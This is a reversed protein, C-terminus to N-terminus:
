AKKACINATDKRNTVFNSILFRQSSPLDNLSIAGAVNARRLTIWLEFDDPTGIAEFANNTKKSSCLWLSWCDLREYFINFYHTTAAILRAKTAPDCPSDLSRLAARMAANRRKEVEPDQKAPRDPAEPLEPLHAFASRSSDQSTSSDGLSRKADSFTRTDPIPKLESVKTTLGPGSLFQSAILFTALFVASISMIFRM